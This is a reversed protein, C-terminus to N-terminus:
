RRIKGSEDTMLGVTMSQSATALLRGSESWIHGSGYALGNGAFAVEGDCLVWGDAEADTIPNAYRITNDLSTCHVRTGFANGVGASMYDAILALAPADLAVEPMRVWLRLNGDGSPDGQGNFGFMGGALRIDVHDHVCPVEFTRELLECDQPRPVDPATTWVGRVEERRQGLAAVISIIEADGVMGVARGQAMSHGMAPFHIDIDMVSGQQVTSVYQGTAWAVPRDASEELAAVGAALGSGGFLSGRRGGINQSGVAMSWAGDTARRLGLFDRTRLM